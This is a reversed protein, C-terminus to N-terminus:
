PTFMANPNSGLISFRSPLINADRLKDLPVWEFEIWDERASVDTQRLTM